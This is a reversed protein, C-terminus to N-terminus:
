IITGNPCNLQILKENTLIKISDFYYLICKVFNVFCRYQSQVLLEIIIKECVIKSTGIVAAGIIDVVFACSFALFTKLCYYEYFPFLIV